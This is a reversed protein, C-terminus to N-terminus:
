SLVLRRDSELPLPRVISRALEELGIDSATVDPDWRPSHDKDVLTARVGEVFDSRRFMRVATDYDSCLTQELLERQSLGDSSRREAMSILEWCVAQSTPCGRAIRALLGRAWAAVEADSSALEVELAAVCEALSSAAAFCRHMALRLCSSSASYVGCNGTGSAADGALTHEEFCGEVSVSGELMPLSALEAVLASLRSSAIAHTALKAHVADAAGHLPVGTVAMLRGLGPPMLTAVYSFSADPFLGINNEPMALQTRETCIRHKASLALGLGFGMTIGDMIAVTPKSCTAIRWILNSQAWVQNRGLCANSGKERLAAATTKVDGGSCFARGAFDRSGRIIVAGVEPEALCADVAARLGTVVALTAANLSKPRELTILGLSGARELRVHECTFVAEDAPPVSIATSSARALAVGYSKRRRLESKFYLWRVPRSHCWVPAGAGAAVGGVPGRVRALAVVM